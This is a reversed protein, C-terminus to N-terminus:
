EAARVSAALGSLTTWAEPWPASTDAGDPMFHDALWLGDWGSAEAHRAIQLMEEFSQTPNPWVSFRM